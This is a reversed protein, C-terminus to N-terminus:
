YHGTSLCEITMVIGEHQWLMGKLKSATQSITYVVNYVTFQFPFSEVSSFPRVHGDFHTKHRVIFNM